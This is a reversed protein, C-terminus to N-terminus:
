DEYDSRNRIIPQGTLFCEAIAKAMFDNDTEISVQGESTYVIKMEDPSTDTTYIEVEKKKRFLNFPNFM